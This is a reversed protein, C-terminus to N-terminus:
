LVDNGTEDKCYFKIVEKLDLYANSDSSAGYKTVVAKSTDESEKSPNAVYPDYNGNDASDYAIKTLGTSKVDFNIIFEEGDENLLTSNGDASKIVLSLPVFDDSQTNRFTFSKGDASLTIINMNGGKLAFSWQGSLTETKGKQDTITLYAGRAGVLKNIFDTVNTSVDSTDATLSITIATRFLGDNNLSQEVKVKNGGNIARSIDNETLEIKMATPKYVCIRDTLANTWNIPEDEGNDYNLSIYGLRIGQIENIQVSSKTRVRYELYAEGSDTANTLVGDNFTFLESIDNGAVDLIVPKMLGKQFEDKFVPVSESGINFGIGFDYDSGQNISTENNVVPFLATDVKFDYVSDTYLSKKCNIRKYGSSMEVINYLGSESLEPKVTAFYLTFVGTNYLTLRSGNIAFLTLQQGNEMTYVGSASRIYGNEGIIENASSIYDNIDGNGFSAFFVKDQYINDEPVFAYEELDVNKPVITSVGGTTSYQLLVDIDSQDTWAVDGEVHKTIELVVERILATGETQEFLAQDDGVILAINMKINAAETASLTWYSYRVNSVKSNPRYYRKGGITVFDGGSVNLIKNEITPDKGDLEFNIAINKLLNDLILGSSSYVNVGLYDSDSQFSYNNLYLNLPQEAKMSVNSKNVTFRGINEEGIAMIVHSTTTLNQNESLFRLVSQYYSANDIGEESAFEREYDIQAKANSFTYSNIRINQAMQDGALLHIEHMSDYVTTLSDSSVPEYYSKKLRWSTQDRESLNDSYMYLSKSPLYKSRLTFSENKVVQSVVEGKSNIILTETSYVPVDVAVNIFAPNIQIYESQARLSALGGAIWQVPNNQHDLIVTGDDDRLDSRVLHVTFPRGLTVEQPVEIVGNSVKGDLVTTPSGGTFSLSVKRQTVGENTAVVTLQFDEGTEIQNTAANFLGDDYSFNIGEPSVVKEDFGGTLYVGLVTAGSIAFVGAVVAVITMWIKWRVKLKPEKKKNEASKDKKRM